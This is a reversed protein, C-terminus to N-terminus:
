VLFANHQAPNQYLIVPAAGTGFVDNKNPLKPFKSPNNTNMGFILITM